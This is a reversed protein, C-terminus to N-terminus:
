RSLGAAGLGLWVCAVCEVWALAAQWAGQGDRHRRLGRGLGLWGAGWAWGVWGCGWGVRAVAGASEAVPRLWLRLLGLWLELPM